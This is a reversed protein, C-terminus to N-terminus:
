PASDSKECSEVGPGEGLGRVELGQEIGQHPREQPRAQLFRSGSRSHAHPERPHLVAGGLQLHEGLGVLLAAPQGPDQVAEVAPAPIGDDLVAMLQRSPRPASQM